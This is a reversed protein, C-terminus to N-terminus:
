ACPNPWPKELGAIQREVRRLYNMQTRLHPLTPSTPNDKELRAISEELHDSQKVTRPKGSDETM